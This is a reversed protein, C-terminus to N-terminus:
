SSTRAWYDLLQAYLEILASYFPQLTEDSYKFTAALLALPSGFRPSVRNM